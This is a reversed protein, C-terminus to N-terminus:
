LRDKMTSKIKQWQNDSTLQKEKKHRNFKKILAGYNSHFLDSLETVRINNKKIIVKQGNGTKVLELAPYIEIENYPLIIKRGLGFFKKIILERNMLEIVDCRFKCIYIQYITAYIFVLMFCITFLLNYNLNRFSYKESVGISILFISLIFCLISFILLLPQIYAIVRFKSKIIEAKSM